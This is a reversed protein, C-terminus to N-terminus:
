TLFFKPMRIHEGDPKVPVAQQGSKARVFFDDM